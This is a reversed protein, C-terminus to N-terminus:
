ALINLKRVGQPPEYNNHGFMDIERIIIKNAPVKEELDKSDIKDFGCYYSITVRENDM